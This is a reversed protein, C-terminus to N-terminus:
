DVFQSTLAVYKRYDVRQDGAVGMILVGPAGLMEAFDSDTVLCGSSGAVIHRFEVISISGSGDKDFVRFADLLVENDNAAPMAVVDFIATTQRSARDAEDEQAFLGGDPMWDGDGDGEEKEKEEKTTPTASAEIEVDGAEYELENLYLGAAEFEGHLAADVSAKRGPVHVYLTRTSPGSLAAMARPLARLTADSYLLESGIIFDWKGDKAADPIDSWDLELVRVRGGIGPHLKNVRNIQAKLAPVACELESLTIHINPLAVALSLGLWGAGSGLELIRVNPALLGLSDAESKLYRLLLQAGRWVRRHTTRLEKRAELDGIPSANFEHLALGDEQHPSQLIELCRQAASETLGEESVTQVFRSALSADSASSRDDLIVFQKVDPHEQLWAKIEEARNAYNSSDAADASLRSADSVGPTRGIIADAPIRYRRLIYRIYEEFHRWFTSLVISANTAEVIIRLREVLDADLRIHTNHRTRNLVGDIDLFVVKM